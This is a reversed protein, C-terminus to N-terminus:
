AGATRPPFTSSLRADLHKETLSRGAPSLSILRVRRDHPDERREILGDNVLQDVVRGTAAMSMRLEHALENIPIPADHVTLGFIARVQSFSLDTEVLADMAEAEGLYHLRLLFQEVLQYTDGALGEM